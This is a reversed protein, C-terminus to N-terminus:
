TFLPAAAASDGEGARKFASLLLLWLEKLVM